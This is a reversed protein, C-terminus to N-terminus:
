KYVRINNIKQQKIISKNMTHKYYSQISFLFDPSIIDM